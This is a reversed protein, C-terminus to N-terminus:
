TKSQEEAENEFDFLGSRRIGYGFVILPRDVKYLGSLSPVAVLFALPVDIRGLYFKTKKVRAESIAQTAKSEERMDFVFVRIANECGM